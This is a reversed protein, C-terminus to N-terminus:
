GFCRRCLTGRTPTHIAQAATLPVNCQACNNTQARFGPEIEFLLTREQPINIGDFAGAGFGEVVRTVYGNIKLKGVSITLLQKMRHKHELVQKAGSAMEDQNVLCKFRTSATPELYPPRVKGLLLDDGFEHLVLDVRPGGRNVGVLELVDTQAQMKTKREYSIKGDRPGLWSGNVSYSMSRPLGASNAFKDLLKKISQAANEVTLVNSWDKITIVELEFAGYKIEASPSSFRQSKLTCGRMRRFGVFLAIPPKVGLAELVCSYSWVAKILDEDVYDAFLCKNEDAYLERVSEIQGTSFVQVSGALKNETKFQKSTQYGELNIRGSYEDVREVPPLMGQLQRVREPDVDIMRQFPVLHLVQIPGSNFEEEVFEDILKYRQQRWAEISNMDFSLEKELRESVWLRALVGVPIHLRDAVQTLNSFLEEDARFQVLGGKQPRADEAKSRPRKLTM